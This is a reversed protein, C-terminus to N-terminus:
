SIVARRQLTCLRCPQLVGSITVHGHYPVSVNVPEVWGTWDFTLAEEELWVRVREADRESLAVERTRGGSTWGIRIHVVEADMHEDWDRFAEMTVQGSHVTHADHGDRLWGALTAVELDDLNISVEGGTTAQFISINLTNDVPRRYRPGFQLVMRSNGVLGYGVSGLTQFRDENM